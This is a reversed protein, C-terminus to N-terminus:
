SSFQAIARMEREFVGGILVVVQRERPGADGRHVEDVEVVGGPM